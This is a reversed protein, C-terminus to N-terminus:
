RVGGPRRDSRRQAERERRRVAGPAVRRTRVAAPRFRRIGIGLGLVGTLLLWPMRNSDLPVLDPIPATDTPPLSALFRLQRLTVPQRYFYTGANGGPGKIVGVANYRTPPQIWTTGNESMRGGPQLADFALAIVEGPKARLHTCSAASTGNGGSYRTQPWNAGLYQMDILDGPRADGRLVETVRLAYDRPGQDPGLGLESLEFDAVIEGVVIARASGIAPTIDPWPPLYMCEARVPATGLGIATTAAAFAILIAAAHRGV